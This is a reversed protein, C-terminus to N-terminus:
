GEKDIAYRDLYPTILPRISEESQGFQALKYKHKGFEGQPNDALWTRMAAEVEPTFDDGLWGYLARMADIPNRM